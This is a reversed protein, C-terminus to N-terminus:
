DADPKGYPNVVSITVNGEHQLKETFDAESKGLLESAKLRHSMDLDQRELTETWFRQREARTAIRAASQTANRKDIAERIQVNRLNQRAIQALTNDVGKYGAKRAADTGNGCYAEVFARQKRTLPM